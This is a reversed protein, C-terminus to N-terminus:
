RHFSMTKAKGPYPFPFCRLGPDVAQARDRSVARSPGFGAASPTRAAKTFFSPCAPPHRELDSGLCLSSNLSPKQRRKLRLRLFDGLAALDKAPVPKNPTYAVLLSKLTQQSLSQKRRHGQLVSMFEVRKKASLGTKVQNWVKTGQIETARKHGSCLSGAKQAPKSCTEVTCYHDNAGRQDNLWFTKFEQLSLPHSSPIAAKFDEESCPLGLATATSHLKAPTLPLGQTLDEYSTLFSGYLSRLRVLLASLFPSVLGAVGKRGRCLFETLSSRTVVGREDEAQEAWYRLESLSVSAPLEGASGTIDEISVRDKGSSFLHEVTDRLFYVAVPSPVAKPSHRPSTPFQSPTVNLSQDLTLPSKSPHQFRPAKPTPLPPPTLATPSELELFDKLVSSQYSTSMSVEKVGKGLEAFLERAEEERFGVRLFRLMGCLRELTVEEGMLEQLYRSATQLSGYSQKLRERLSHSFSHKAPASYLQTTLNPLSALRTLPRPQSGHPRM